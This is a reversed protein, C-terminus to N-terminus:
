CIGQRKKKENLVVKSRSEGTGDIFLLDLQRSSSKFGTGICIQMM